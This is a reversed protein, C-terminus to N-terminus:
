AYIIENIQCYFNISIREDNIYETLKSTALNGLDKAKLIYTNLDFTSSKLEYLGSIWM